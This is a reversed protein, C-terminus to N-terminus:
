HGDHSTEMGIQNGKEPQQELKAMKWSRVAKHAEDYIKRKLNSERALSYASM